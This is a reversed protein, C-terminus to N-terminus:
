CFYNLLFLQAVFSHFCYDVVKQAISLSKRFFLLFLLITAVSLQFQPLSDAPMTLALDLLKCAHLYLQLWAPIVGNPGGNGQLWSADM